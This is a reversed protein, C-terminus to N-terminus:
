NSLPVAGLGVDGVSLRALDRGMVLYIQHKEREKVGKKRKTQPINIGRSDPIESQARQTNRHRVGPEM